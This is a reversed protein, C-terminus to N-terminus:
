PRSKVITIQYTGHPFQVVLGKNRTMMGAEAFTRVPRPELLEALVAEVEEEGGEEGDDEYSEKVSRLQDVAEAVKSLFDASQKFPKLPQAPKM